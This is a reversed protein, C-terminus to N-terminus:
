KTVRPDQLLLEVVKEHNHWVAWRLAENDQVSPDIRSDQFLLEVVKIHGDSTARWIAYQYQAFPDVRPDQLLIKVMKVDGHWVASWIADYNNNWAYLVIRPDQLLLEIVKVYNNWVVCVIAHASPDVQPYQLLLEVVKVYNNNAAWRIIDNHFVSPDIGSSLLSGVKYFSINLKLFTIWDKRHIYKSLLWILNRNM